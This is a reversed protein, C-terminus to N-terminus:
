PRAKLQYRPGLDPDDGADSALQQVLDADGTLRSLAARADDIDVDAREAIDSLHGPGGDAEVAAAAEFVQQELDSLATAVPESAPAQGDDGGAVSADGAGGSGPPVDDTIEVDAETSPPTGTAVVVAFDTRAVEEEDLELVLQHDDTHDFTVGRLEDYIDGHGALVTRPAGRYVTRGHVDELRWREEVGGEVGDWARAVVFDHATAPADGALRVINDTAPTLGGHEQVQDRDVVKAYRLTAGM